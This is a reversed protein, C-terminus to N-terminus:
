LGIYITTDQYVEYGQINGLFIYDYDTLDGIVEKEEPLIVYHCQEQKALVALQQADIVESEMTGRLESWNGWIQTLVERGYPMCVVPSYQRVYPVLEVPFVAMVERGEVEIADCIEVVAQPMHYSNQAKSFLSSSYIFSGSIMVLVAATGAWLIRKRGKLNGYIQVAAYGIVMTIPLLWLMRFYTEAGAVLYMLEAFPPFFFVALVLIPVYVFLIRINKRKETILLYVISVLFWGVILGSGMFKQFTEIENSWM